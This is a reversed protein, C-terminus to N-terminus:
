ILGLKVMVDLLHTAKLDNLTIQDIKCQYPASWIIEAGMSAAANEVDYVTYGRSRCTCILVDPNYLSIIEPLRKNLGSNPDGMSEFAIVKHNIELILRFDISLSTIPKSTFLVKHAPYVRMMERALALVNSSKGINQSGWIAIVKKM